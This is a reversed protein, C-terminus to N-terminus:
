AFSNVFGSRGSRRFIGDSTCFEAQFLVVFVLFFESRACFEVQFFVVRLPSVFCLFIGSRACFEPKCFLASIYLRGTVFCLFIGGRACFEARFFVVRLPSVICAISWKTGATTFKFTEVRMM